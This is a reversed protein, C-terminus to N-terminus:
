WEMGELKKMADTALGWREVGKTYIESTQAQAHGHIAMIQYQTCGEVALLHGAAKRIGHASRNNLGAERCWKIFSQGLSESTKYPKGFKTLLYTSGIVNVARTAKYLPPIMPIEIFPPEVKYL